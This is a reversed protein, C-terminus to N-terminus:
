FALNSASSLEKASLTAFYGVNNSSGCAIFDFCFPPDPKLLM